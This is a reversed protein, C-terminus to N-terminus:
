FSTNHWKHAVYARIKQLFVAVNDEHWEIILVPDTQNMQVLTKMEDLCEQAGRLNYVIRKMAYRCQLIVYWRREIGDCRSCLKLSRQHIEPNASHLINSGNFTIMQM